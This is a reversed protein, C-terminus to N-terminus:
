GSARKAFIVVARIQSRQPPVPFIEETTPGPSKYPTQLVDQFIERNLPLDRLRSDGPFKRDCDQEETEILAETQRAVTALIEENRHKHEGATPSLPNVLQFVDLGEDIVMAEGCALFDYVVRTVGELTNGIRGSLGGSSFGIIEPAVQGDLGSRMGIVGFPYVNRPFFVEVCESQGTQGPYKRFQGRLTPIESGHGTPRFHKEVLTKQVPEWDFTLNTKPQLPIVVPGHLTARRENIYNYLNYEGLIATHIQQRYFGRAPTEPLTFIHRVDDFRDIIAELPLEVRNEIITKGAMAFSIDESIDRDDDDALHVTVGAESGAPLFRINRFEVRPRRGTDKWKVLCRYTRDQHPEIVPQDEVTNLRCFVPHSNLAPQACYAVHWYNMTLDGHGQVGIIRWGAKGLTDQFHALHNYLTWTGARQHYPNVTSTAPQRRRTHRAHAIYAVCHPDTMRPASIGDRQIGPGHEFGPTVSLFIEEDDSNFRMYGVTFARSEM